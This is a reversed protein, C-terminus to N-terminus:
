VCYEEEATDKTKVRVTTHPEDVEVAASHRYFKTELWKLVRKM